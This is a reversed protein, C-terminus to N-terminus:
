AVVLAQPAAAKMRSRLWSIQAATEGECAQVVGLLAEDRAGQAGQGVVTWCIDCESAMVYLDQLDRLLGIGGERPGGFINSHLNDPEPPAQDAYQAAFPQLKAAHRRCQDALRKCQQMVDPEDGHAEGVRGLAEGLRTQAQELLKLYLALHM